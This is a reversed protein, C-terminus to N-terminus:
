RHFDDIGTLHARGNDFASAPLQDASLAFFSSQIPTNNQNQPFVYTNSALLNGHSDFVRLELNWDGTHPNSTPPGPVLTALRTVNFTFTQGRTIGGQVVIGVENAAERVEKNQAKVVGTGTGISLIAVAM